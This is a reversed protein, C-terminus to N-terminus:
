IRVEKEEELKIRKGKRTNKEFMIDNNVEQPQNNYEGFVSTDDKDGPGNMFYSQVSGRGINTRSNSNM